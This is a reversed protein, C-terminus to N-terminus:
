AINLYSFLNPQADPKPFVFISKAKAEILSLIVDIQEYYHKDDPNMKFLLFNGKFPTIKIVSKGTSDLILRLVQM